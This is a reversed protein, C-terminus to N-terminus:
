VDSELVVGGDEDDDDDIYAADKVLEYIHERIPAKQLGSQIPLKSSCNPLQNRHHDNPVHDNEEPLIESTVYFRSKGLTSSECNKEFSTSHRGWEFKPLSNCNTSKRAYPVDFKSDTGNLGGSIHNLFLSHANHYGNLLKTKKVDNDRRLEENSKKHKDKWPLRIKDTTRVKMQNPVRVVRSELDVPVSEYLSDEDVCDYISAEYKEKSYNTSSESSKQNSNNRKNFVIKSYGHESKIKSRADKPRTPESGGLFTQNTGASPQHFEDVSRFPPAVEICSKRLSTAVANDNGVSDLYTKPRIPKNVVSYIPFESNCFSRVTSTPPSSSSPTDDFASSRSARPDLFM